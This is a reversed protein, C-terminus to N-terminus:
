KEQYKGVGRIGDAIGFCRNIRGTFVDFDLATDNQNFGIDLQCQNGGAAKLLWAFVPRIGCAAM